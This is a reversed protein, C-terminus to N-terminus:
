SIWSFRATPATLSQAQRRETTQTVRIRERTRCVRWTSILGVGVTFANLNSTMDPTGTLYGSTGVKRRLTWSPCRAVVCGM